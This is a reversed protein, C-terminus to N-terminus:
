RRNREARIRRWDNAAGADRNDIEAARRQRYASRFTAYPDLSTRRVDDIVEILGERTTLVNLGFRLYRLGEVETGQGIGPFLLNGFPDIAADVVVGGADRPSSPGFAPIFLFPGEPVGWVALTQGFDERHPPYGMGEAVEFIGAVGLTSNIVFRALSDGARRPQGQLVDNMFTVPTRLNALVNDVRTRVPPPVFIRYAEAAPRLLVTDIGEHVFFAARNLPELPDNTQDFEARAEPDSAPPRTACAGLLVLPLVLLLRRLTM